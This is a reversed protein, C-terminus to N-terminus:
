MLTQLGQNNTYFEDSYSSYDTVFDDAFMNMNMTELSNYAQIFSGAVGDAIDKGGIDGDGDAFKVPHDVKTGDDRLNVLEKILRENKCGSVLGEYVKQKLTLYPIRSTDVSIYKTDFGEIYLDQLVIIGPKDASVTKIPYGQKRLFKIFNAITSSPVGQKSTAKFGIAWDIIVKRAGFNDTLNGANSTKQVYAAALGFMDNNYGFDLHIFRETKVSLKQKFVDFDVYSLIDQYKDFTSLNIVDKTFLNSSNFAKNVVERSRFLTTSFQVRYGAIDRIAGLIDDDESFEKYHEIPVSIVTGKPFNNVRETNLLIRPDHNEDGLFVNFKKGCYGAVDAKVVWTPLNDVVKVSPDLTSIKIRENLFDDVTKPSSVLWIIGPVNFGNKFRSERRRTIENYNIKAQDSIVKNNGEDIIGTLVDRGIAHQYRSGLQISINKTLDLSKIKPELADLELRTKFWPSEMIAEKIKKWNVDSVNEKTSSFIALVITDTPMLGYFVAPNKLCLLCHLEYLVSIDTVTSKGVGIACSLIVEKYPRYFENPYIETLLDRWYKYIKCKEGDMFIKGLYKEDTIFTKIDAPREIYYDKYFEWYLDTQEKESLSNIIESVEM